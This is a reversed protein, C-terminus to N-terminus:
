GLSLFPFAGVEVGAQQERLAGKSDQFCLGFHRFPLRAPNLIRNECSLTPELGVKPM